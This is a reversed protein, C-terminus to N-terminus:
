RVLSRYISIAAKMRLLEVLRVLVCGKSHPPSTPPMGRRQQCGRLAQWIWLPWVCPQSVESPRKPGVAISVQCKPFRATQEQFPQMSLCRPLLHESSTIYNYLAQQNLADSVESGAALSHSRSSTANFCRM